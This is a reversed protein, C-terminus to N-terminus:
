PYISWVGIASHDFYCKLCYIKISEGRLEWLMPYGSGSSGSVVHNKVTKERFKLASIEDKRSYMLSRWALIEAKRSNTVTPSALEEAM